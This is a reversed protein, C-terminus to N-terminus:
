KLKNDENDKDNMHNIYDNIRDMSENAKKMTRDFSEREKELYKDVAYNTAALMGITGVAKGVNRATECSQIRDYENKYLNYSTNSTANNMNTRLTRLRDNVRQKYKAETSYCLNVCLEWLVFVILLVLKNDPIIGNDMAGWCIYLVCVAFATCFIGKGTLIGM